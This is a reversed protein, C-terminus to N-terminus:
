TFKVENLFKGDQDLGIFNKLIIIKTLSNERSEFKNNKRHVFGYRVGAKQCKDSSM